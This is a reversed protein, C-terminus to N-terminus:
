SLEAALEQRGEEDARFEPVRAGCGALFDADSMKACTRWTAGLPMASAPLEAAVLQEANVHYDDSIPLTVLTMLRIQTKSAPTQSM